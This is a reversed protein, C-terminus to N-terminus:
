SNKKYVFVSLVKNKVKINPFDPARSLDNVLIGTLGTWELDVM